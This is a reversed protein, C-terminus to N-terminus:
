PNLPKYVRQVFESDAPSTSRRSRCARPGDDLKGRLPRDAIALRSERRARGARDCPAPSAELQRRFCAAPLALRSKRHSRKWTCRIGLAPVRRRSRCSNREDTGCDAHGKKSLPGFFRRAASDTPYRCAPRDLTFQPAGSDRGAFGFCVIPRRRDCVDSADLQPERHSEDKQIIGVRHLPTPWEIGAFHLWPRDRCASGCAHQMERSM